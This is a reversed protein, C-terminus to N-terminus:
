SQLSHTINRDRTNRSPTYGRSPHLLDTVGRSVGPDVPSLRGATTRCVFGICCGNLPVFVSMMLNNTKRFFFFIREDLPPNSDGFFDSFIAFRVQLLSVFYLLIFGVRLRKSNEHRVVRGHKTKWSEFALTFFHSSSINRSESSGARLYEM